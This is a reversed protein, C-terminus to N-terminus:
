LKVIRRRANRRGGNGGGGEREKGMQWKGCGGVNFVCIKTLLLNLTGGRNKKGIEMELDQLTVWRMTESEGKMVVEKDRRM